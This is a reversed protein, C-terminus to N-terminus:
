GVAVCATIVAQTALLGNLANSVLLVRSFQAGPAGVGANIGNGGWNAVTGNQVVLGAAADTANAANIGDASGPVGLLSFGNLDLTVNPAAIGLGNKGSVGTLNNTLYYSGSNTILFLNLSDGPTNNSNVIARPEIEQLTKFAPAPAGPPTLPGQALVAHLALLQALILRSGPLRNKM